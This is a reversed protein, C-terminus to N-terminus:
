AKAEHRTNWREISSGMANAVASEINRSARIPKTRAGCTDCEIYYYASCDDILATVGSVSECGCFPCAKMNINKLKQKIAM